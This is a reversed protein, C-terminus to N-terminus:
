KNIQEKSRKRKMHIRNAKNLKEQMLNISKSSRTDVRSNSNLDNNEGFFPPQKVSGFYGTELYTADSGCRSDAVSM